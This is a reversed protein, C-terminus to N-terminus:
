ALTITSSRVVGDTGRVKIVLTTNNTLQFTMGRETAPEASAQPRIVVAEPEMYALAGLHLNLPIQNPAFGIDTQEVVGGKIVEWWAAVAALAAQRVRQATWARRTTATGTEAEAQEVTAATWERANTVAADTAELKGSLATSLGTIDTIALNENVNTVRIMLTGQTSHSHVVFAVPLALGTAPRDSTLEGAGSPDCWLVDGEAWGSTDLGRVKGFVTIKGDQGNPITQTAMGLLYKANSVQNAQMPAVLIRGSAGHTGVAMVAMGNLIDFGTANRCHVQVEQGLQLTTGDQILDVTGEDANWSLTGQSGIGGLLQLSSLLLASPICSQPLSDSPTFEALASVEETIPDLLAKVPIATAM